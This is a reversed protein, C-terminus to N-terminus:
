CAIDVIYGHLSADIALFVTRGCAFPTIKYVVFNLATEIM